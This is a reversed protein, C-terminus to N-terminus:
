AMQRSPSPAGLIIKRPKSSPKEAPPKNREDKGSSFALYLFAFLNTVPLILFIATLITKGRAEVIRVSWVIQAVINLVPICFAVFWWGSMGAARLMPFVQLVPLWIMFGPDSGAKVCILKLCYCSFLYLIALVAFVALIMEPGVAGLLAPLPNPRTVSEPLGPSAAEGQASESAAAQQVSAPLKAMLAKMADNAKSEMSETASAKKVFGLAALTADDLETIKVNQVGGDHSIHIEGASRATVTVNRYEATKTKLVDFTEVKEVPDVPPTAASVALAFGISLSFLGTRM